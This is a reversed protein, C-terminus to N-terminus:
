FFYCGTSGCTKKNKKVRKYWQSYLKHNDKTKNIKKVPTKKIVEPSEQVVSPALSSSVPFSPKQVGTQEGEMIYYIVDSSQITKVADQVNLDFDKRFSESSRYNESVSLESVEGGIAEPHQDYYKFMLTKMTTNMKNQNRIELVSSVDIVNDLDGKAIAGNHSRRILEDQILEFTIEPYYKQIDKVKIFCIKKTGVCSETLLNLFNEFSQDWRHQSDVFDSARASLNIFSLSVVCAWVWVQHQFVKNIFYQIWKMVPIMIFSLSKLTM